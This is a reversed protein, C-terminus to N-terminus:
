KYGNRETIFSSITIGLIFAAAHMGFAINPIFITIFNCLAFTIKDMDGLRWTRINLGIYAYLVTSFGVMPVFSAFSAAVAIPYAKVIDMPSPKMLAICLVNAALHFINAHLFHCVFHNWLPSKISAAYVECPIFMCLLLLMETLILVFTKNKGEPM